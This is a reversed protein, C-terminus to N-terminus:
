GAPYQGPHASGLLEARKSGVYCMLCEEVAGIMLTPPSAASRRPAAGAATTAGPTDLVVGSDARSVGARFESRLRCMGGRSVVVTPPSHRNYVTMGEVAVVVTTPPAHRQELDQTVFDGHQASVVQARPQAPDVARWVIRATSKAWM